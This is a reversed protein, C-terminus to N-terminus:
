SKMALDIMVELEDVADQDSGYFGNIVFRIKGNKDIVFKTPIGNLKFSNTAVNVNRYDMYLDFDYNNETLYKKAELLPNEVKEWTHIFLFKVNSNKKQENVAMQMAPFSKKCPVCWTSWFDLVITKGKFDKLSVEKGNEDKLVFDPSPRDVMLKKIGAIYKENQQRKIDALYSAADSTPNAKQYANRLLTEMDGKKDIVGKEYIKVAAAFNGRKELLNAYNKSLVVSPNSSNQFARELYDFALNENGSTLLLNGYLAVITWYDNKVPKNGEASKLKQETFNLALKLDINAVEEILRAASGLSQLSNIYPMAESVEKKELHSLAMVYNIEDMERGPFDNRIQQYLAKRKQPDKEYFVINTKLVEFANNGKPFKRAAVRSLSDGKALQKRSRYYNIVTNFNGEAGKELEAIKAKIKAPDKENQLFQLDRDKTTQANLNIGGILLILILLKKM